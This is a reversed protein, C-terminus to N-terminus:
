EINVVQGQGERAMARLDADTVPKGGVGWAGAQVDQITM